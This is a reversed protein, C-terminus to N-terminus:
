FLNTEGERELSKPKGFVISAVVARQASEHVSFLDSIEDAMTETSARKRQYARGGPHAQLGATPQLPTDKSCHPCNLNRGIAGDPFLLQGGCHVCLGKHFYDGDIDSVLKPASLASTKRTERAPPASQPPPASPKATYNYTPPSQRSPTTPAPPRALRQGSPVDEPRLSPAAARPPPTPRATPSPAASDGELLRRLEEEWGGGSTAKPAPTPSGPRPPSAATPTQRPASSSDLWQGDSWQKTEKEEKRKQWWSALGWIIAIVFYLLADM